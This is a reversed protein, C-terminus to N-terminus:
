LYNKLGARELRERLQRVRANITRRPLGTRRAIQSISETKLAEALERLEPPLGAVIDAVDQALECLEQEERPWCGHWFVKRLGAM